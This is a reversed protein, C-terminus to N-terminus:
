FNRYSLITFTIWVESDAKNEKYFVCSFLYFNSFLLIGFILVHATDINLMLPQTLRGRGELCQRTEQIAVGEEEELSFGEQVWGGLFAECGAM